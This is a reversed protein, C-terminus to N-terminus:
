ARGGHDSEQKGSSDSVKDSKEGAGAHEAEAIVQLEDYPQLGTGQADDLPNQKKRDADREKDSGEMVRCAPEACPEVAPDDSEDRCDADRDRPPV